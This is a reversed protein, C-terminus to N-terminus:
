KVKCRYEFLKLVIYQAFKNNKKTFSFFFTLVNQGSVLVRVAILHQSYATIILKVRNLVVNM